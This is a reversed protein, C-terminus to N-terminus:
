RRWRGAPLRDRVCTHINKARLAAAKTAAAAKMLRSARARDSGVRRATHPYEKVLRKVESECKKRPSAMPMEGTPAQIAKRPPKAQCGRTSHRASHSHIAPKSMM